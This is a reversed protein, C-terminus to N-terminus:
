CECDKAQSARNIRWNVEASCDNNKMILSGLYVFESVRELVDTGAAITTAQSLLLM